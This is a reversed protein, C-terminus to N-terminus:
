LLQTADLRELVLRSVRPTNVGHFGYVLAERPVIGDSTRHAEKCGWQFSVPSAPINRDVHNQFGCMCYSRSRLQFSARKSGAAKSWHSRLECRERAGRSECRWERRMAMTKNEQDRFGSGKCSVVVQLLQCSSTNYSGAPLNLCKVVHSVWHVFGDIVDHGNLFDGFVQANGFGRYVFKGLLTTDRTSFNSSM